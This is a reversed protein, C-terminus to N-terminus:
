AHGDKWREPYRASPPQPNVGGESWPAGQCRTRNLAPNGAKESSEACSNACPTSTAEANRHEDIPQVPSAMLKSLPRARGVGQAKAELWRMVKARPFRLLRDGLRLVPMSADASVMRTITKVSVQLMSALDSPTLFELTGTFPPPTAQSTKSGTMRMTLPEGEQCGTQIAQHPTTRVHRSM